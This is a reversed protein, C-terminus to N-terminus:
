IFSDAFGPIKIEIYDGHCKLNKVEFGQFM